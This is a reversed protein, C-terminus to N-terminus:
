KIGFKAKYLADFAEKNGKALAELGAPDNKQWEDFNWSARATSGTGANANDILSTFNPVQRIQAIVAELAAIGLKDGIQEYQAQQERTIRGKVTDLLATVSAKNQEKLKNEAAERGTKEANLIASIAAEVEADTSESTVGTLGLRKILAGKDMENKNAQKSNDNMKAAYLGYVNEVTITKIETDTLAKVEKAVPSVITDALGEAVAQQASFWNDGVLWKKVEAEQKGTRDTLAKVFIREMERLAKASKVHEDATGRGPCGGGPAHIIIFANECMCVNRAAPLLIAAMSAAVGDVYADVPIRCNKIANYIVNGEVVSGGYSHIHLHIEDATEAARAIQLAIAQANNLNWDTIEGYLKIEAIRAM